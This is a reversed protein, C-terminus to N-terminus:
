YDTDAVDFGYSEIQAVIEPQQKQHEPWMVIFVEGPRVRELASVDEVLALILIVRTGGLTEIGDLSKLPNAQMGLRTVETLRSLDPLREIPETSRIWLYEVHELRSIPTIDSLPVNILSARRLETAGLGHIGDLNNDSIQVSELGPLGSFDFQTQNEIETGSIGLHTIRSREQEPLEAILSVDFLSVQWGPRDRQGDNMTLAGLDPQWRAGTTRALEELTNPQRNQGQEAVSDIDDRETAGRDAGTESGTRDDEVACGVLLLLIVSPLLFQHAM